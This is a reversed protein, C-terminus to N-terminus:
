KADSKKLSLIIKGIKSKGIKMSSIVIASNEDVLYLNEEFEVKERKDKHPYILTYSVESANGAQRGVAPSIFDHGIATYSEADEVTILWTRVDRKGGNFNFTYKITGRNEEWDGVVKTVFGDIIKGNEDQVIAFGDLNGSLFKKVNYKPAKELYVLPKKVENDSKSKIADKIAACSSVTIALILLTSIKSLTKM